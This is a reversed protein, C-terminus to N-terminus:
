EEEDIIEQALAIIDCGYKNKGNELMKKYIPYNVGCCIIGTVGIVIGAIFANIGAGIVNMSLCMGVGLILSSIIGFTFAFITAPLQAKECLKKLQKVKTNEKKAYQNAIHEAYIKDTNM